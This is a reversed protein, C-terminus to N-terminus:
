TISYRDAIPKRWIARNEKDEWEIIKKIRFSRIDQSNQYHLVGFRGGGIYSVVDGPEQTEAETIKALICDFHVPTGSARDPLAAAIDKIPKGCLPCDSVPLPTASPKVPSWKPRSAGGPKATERKFLPEPDNKDYKKKGPTQRQNQKGNRPPAATGRAPAARPTSAARPAAPRAAAEEENKDRRKFPRRRNNGGRENGSM